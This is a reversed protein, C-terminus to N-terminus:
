WEYETGIGREAFYDHEDHFEWVRSESVPFDFLEFRPSLRRVSEPVGNSLDRESMRSPTAQFPDEESVCRAYEEKWAAPNAASFTTTFDMEVPLLLEGGPGANFRLRAYSEGGQALIAMVTWDCGGFVRAFTSEDTHSPEASQGPHTHVWIRAFREPLLGADVSNDFHDAVAADDFKVSVRTCSQRVLKLDEVLLPDSESTIGFGGVETPGIDRLCLLKAWAYPTFRLTPRQQHKPTQKRSSRRTSLIM